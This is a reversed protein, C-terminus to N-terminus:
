SVCAGNKCSAMFNVAVLIEDFFLTFFIRKKIMKKLFSSSRLILELSHNQNKSNPWQVKTYGQIKYLTDM